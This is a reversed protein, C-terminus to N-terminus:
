TVTLSIWRLLNYALANSLAVCSVKPLGRVPMRDLTRRTRVDANVRESTRTREQYIAKSEAAAMRARGDPMQM